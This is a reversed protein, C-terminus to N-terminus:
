SISSIYQVTFSNVNLYMLSVHSHVEGILGNIRGTQPDYVGYKGDPAEYLEYDFGASKSIKDILEVAFGDYAVEGNRDSYKEVYPWSKRSM